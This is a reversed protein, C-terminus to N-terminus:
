PLRGAFVVLERTDPNSAFVRVDSFYRRGESVIAETSYGSRMSDLRAFFSPEEVIRDDSLSVVEVVLVDEALNALTRMVPEIGMGAGLVLHHILGLCLVLSSRFRICAPLSQGDAELQFRQQEEDEAPILDEFAVCAPSIDLGGLATERHLREISPADADLAIVSAGKSAALVAFWGTNCGLDLVTSPRHLDLIEGVSRQKDNWDTSDALAQDEGKIAYYSTYASNSVGTGLAQLTLGISEYAMPFGHKSSAHKMQRLARVNRVIRTRDPWALLDRLSPQEKGSNCWRSGLMLAMREHEGSAGVMFPIAMFPIFMKTLVLEQPLSDVSDGVLWAESRLEEQPIVSSFDIFVPKGREFLVNSPLGDKLALGHENLLASLELTLTCADLMMGATWESPYTMTLRPHRLILYEDGQEAVETEILRNDFFGSSQAAKVVRLATPAFANPVYRLVSSGEAYVEGRDDFGMLKLM